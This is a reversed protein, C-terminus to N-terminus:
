NELIETGVRKVAVRILDLLKIRYPTVLLRM